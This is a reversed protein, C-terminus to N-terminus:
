ALRDLRLQDGLPDRLDLLLLDDDGGRQGRLPHEVYWSIASSAPSSTSTIWPVTTEPSCTEVTESGSFRFSNM